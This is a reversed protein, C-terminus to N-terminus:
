WVPVSPWAGDVTSVVYGCLVLVPSGVDAVLDSDGLISGTGQDCHCAAVSLGFLILSSPSIERTADVSFSGISKGNFDM